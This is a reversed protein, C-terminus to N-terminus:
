FVPFLKGALLDLKQRGSMKEFRVLEGKGM